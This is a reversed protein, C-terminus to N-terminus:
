RVKDNRAVEDWHARERDSLKKWEVARQKLVNAKQPQQTADLPTKQYDAFCMFASRPAQVPKNRVKLAAM